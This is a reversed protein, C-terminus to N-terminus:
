FIGFIDALVLLDEWDGRLCAAPIELNPFQTVSLNFAKDSNYSYDLCSDSGLVKNIRRAQVRSTPNM